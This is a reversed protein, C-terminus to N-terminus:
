SMSYGGDSPKAPEPTIDHRQQRHDIAFGTRPDAGV